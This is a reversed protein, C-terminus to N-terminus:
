SILETHIDIQQLSKKRIPVVLFHQEVLACADLPRVVHLPLWVSNLLDDINHVRAFIRLKENRKAWNGMHLKQINFVEPCHEALVLDQIVLPENVWTGDMEEVLVIPVIQIKRLDPQSM